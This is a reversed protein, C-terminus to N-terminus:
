LLKRITIGNATGWEHLVQTAQPMLFEMYRAMREAAYRIDDLSEPSFPIVEWILHERRQESSCDTGLTDPAVPALEQTVANQLPQLDIRRSARDFRQNPGKEIDLSVLAHEPPLVDKMWEFEEDGHLVCQVHLTWNTDFLQIAQTDPRDPHRTHMQSYFCIHRSFRAQFAYDKVLDGLHIACRARWDHPPAEDFGPYDPVYCPIIQAM